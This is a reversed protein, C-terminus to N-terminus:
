RLWGRLQLVQVGLLGTLVYCRRNDIPHAEFRARQFYQVMYEKGDTPSIEPFAETIPYGFLPLGGHEQWYQAFQPSVNHGVEEFYITGPFNYNPTRQFAQEGERGQTVTTGLLGLLVNNPPQNEPHQEFRAREFYQTVYPKGDTPSVEIFEETLPYGFQSLGGQAEWYTRFVGRLTHQVPSFYSVAPDHPDPVPDFPRTRVPVATCADSYHAIMSYGAAWVDGKATTVLAAITEGSRTKGWQGLQPIQTWRAGDWHLTAPESHPKGYVNGANGAVWVDNPAAAAVTHFESGAQAPIPNPVATWVHGDWHRILGTRQNLGALDAMGVAWIDDPAVAAIGLLYGQDGADTRRSWSYGDWHIIVPTESGLPGTTGVAWVDNPRPATVAYLLVNAGLENASVQSWRKGDWHLILPSHTQAKWHTISGVAWVDDPGAAALGTLQNLGDQTTDNPSPTITWQVGDWHEVLTDLKVAGVGATQDTVTYGAAWVDNPGIAAVATLISSRYRTPSPVRRWEKGDWHEVLTNQYYHSPWLAGVLWVDNPGTAAAAKFEPSAPWLNM